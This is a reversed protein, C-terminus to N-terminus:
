RLGHASQYYKQERSKAGSCGDFAQLRSKTGWVAPRLDWRNKQAKRPLDHGKEKISPLFEIQRPNSPALALASSAKEMWSAGFASRLPPWAGWIDAKRHQLRYFHVNAHHESLFSEFIDGSLRSSWAWMLPPLYRGSRFERRGEPKCLCCM